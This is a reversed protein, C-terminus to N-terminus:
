KIFAVVFNIWYCLFTVLLYGAILGICFSFITGTITQDLYGQPTKILSGFSIKDDWDLAINSLRHCIYTQQTIGLFVHASFGTLYDSWTKKFNNRPGISGVLGPFATFTTVFVIYTVSLLMLIPAMFYWTHFLSRWGLIISFILLLEGVCKGCVGAVGLKWSEYFSVRWILLHAVSLPLALFLGKWVGTQWADAIVALSSGFDYIIM